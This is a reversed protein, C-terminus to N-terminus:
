YNQPKTKKTTKKNTKNTQMNKREKKERRRRKKLLTNKLIWDRSWIKLKQKKTNTTLKRCTFVWDETGM